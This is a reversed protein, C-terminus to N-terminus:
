VSVINTLDGRQRNAMLMAPLKTMLMAAERHRGERLLLKIHLTAAEGHRGQQFLRWCTVQPLHYATIDSCYAITQHLQVWQDTGLLPDSTPSDLVWEFSAALRCASVGDRSGAAIHARLLDGINNDNFLLDSTLPQHTM